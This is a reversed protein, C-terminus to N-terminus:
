DKTEASLQMSTLLVDREADQTEYGLLLAIQDYNRGGYEFLYYAHARTADGQEIDRLLRLRERVADPDSEACGITTLDAANTTEQTEIAADDKALRLQIKEFERIAALWLMLEEDSSVADDLNIRELVKQIITRAPVLAINEDSRRIEDICRGLATNFFSELLFRAPENSGALRLIQVLRQATTAARELEHELTEDESTKEDVFEDAECLEFLFDLEEDGLHLAEESGLLKRALECLRDIEPERM